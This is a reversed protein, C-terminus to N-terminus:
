LKGGGGSILNYLDLLLKDERSTVGGDDVIIYSLVTVRGAAPDITSYRGASSRSTVLNVLVPPVRYITTIM